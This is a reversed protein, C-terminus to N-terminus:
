FSHCLGRVFGEAFLRLCSPTSHIPFLDIAQKADSPWRHPHYTVSIPYLHSPENNLPLLSYMPTHTHKGKHVSTSKILERRNECKSALTRFVKRM